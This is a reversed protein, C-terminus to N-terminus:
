QSKRFVTESIQNATIIYSYGRFCPDFYRLFVSCFVDFVNIKLVKAAELVPPFNAVRRASPTCTTGIPQRLGYFSIYLIRSTFYKSLKGCSLIKQFFNEHASSQASTEYSELMIGIILYSICVKSM